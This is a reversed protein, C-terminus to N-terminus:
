SGHCPCGRPASIRWSTNHTHACRSSRVTHLAVRRWPGPWSRLETALYASHTAIAAPSETAPWETGAASCEVIVDHPRSFSTSAKALMTSAEGDGHVFVRACQLRRETAHSCSCCYGVPMTATTDSEYSMKLAHVSSHPLLSLFMTFARPVKSFRMQMRGSQACRVRCPRVRGDEQRQPVCATAMVDAAAARESLQERASPAPTNSTRRTSRSQRHVRQRTTVRTCRAFWRLDDWLQQIQEAGGEGLVDARCPGPVLHQWLVETQDLAVTDRVLRQPGDELRHLGGPPRGVVEHEAATTGQQLLEVAVCLLARARESARQGQSDCPVSPARRTGWVSALVGHAHPLRLALESIRAM